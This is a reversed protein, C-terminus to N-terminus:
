NNWMRQRLVEYMLIGSAVSANLSEVELAMPLKVKYDALALLESSLGKSENGVMLALPKTLDTQYPSERASLDTAILKIKSEKVKVAALEIDDVVIPINFIAGATARVVKPSWIDVSDKSVLIGSVDAAAATRILTGLNGPDQLNCAIIIFKKPCSLIDLFKFDKIKVIAIVGAPNVTNSVADFIRDKLIIPNNAGRIEESANEAYSESFITGTVEWEKSIDLVFKNGEVIFEGFRKRGKSTALAKLKKVLNNQSSTIINLFDGILSKAKRICTSLYYLVNLFIM